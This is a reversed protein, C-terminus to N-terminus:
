AVIQYKQIHTNNYIDYGVFLIKNNGKGTFCVIKDRFVNDEGYLLDEGNEREYKPSFKEQLAKWIMKQM